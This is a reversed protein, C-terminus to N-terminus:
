VAVEPCLGGQLLVGAESATTELMAMVFSAGFMSPYWTMDSPTRAVGAQDTAIIHSEERPTEFVGGLGFRQELPAPKRGDNKLAHQVRRGHEATLM